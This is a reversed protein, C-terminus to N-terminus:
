TGPRQQQFPPHQYQDYGGAMSVFPGRGSNSGMPQGSGSGGVAMSQFMPGLNGGQQHQYFQQQQQQPFDITNIPHRNPDVSNIPPLQQQNPGQRPQFFPQQVAAVDEYVM